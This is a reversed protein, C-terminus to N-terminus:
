SSIWDEEIAERTWYIRFPGAALTETVVGDWLFGKHSPMLWKKHIGFGVCGTDLVNVWKSRLSQTGWEIWFPTNFTLAKRRTAGPKPKMALITIMKM